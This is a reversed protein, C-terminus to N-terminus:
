LYYWKMKIIFSVFVSTPAHCHWAGILFRYTDPNFGSVFAKSVNISLIPTLTVETKYVANFPFTTQAIAKATSAGVNLLSFVLPVLCVSHSRLAM